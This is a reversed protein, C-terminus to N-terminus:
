KEEKVGYMRIYNLLHDFLQKTSITKKCKPCQVMEKETTNHSWTKKCEKCRVNLISTMAEREDPIQIVSDLRIM